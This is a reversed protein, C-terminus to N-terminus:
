SEARSAKVYEQLEKSALSFGGGGDGRDVIGYCSVLNRIGGERAFQSSYHPAKPPQDGAPTGTWGTTDPDTCPWSTPRLAM